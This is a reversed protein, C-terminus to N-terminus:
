PKQRRVEHAQKRKPHINGWFIRGLYELCATGENNQNCSNSQNGSDVATNRSNQRTVDSPELQPQGMQFSSSLHAWTLHARGMTCHSPRRHGLMPGDTGLGACDDCEWTATTPRLASCCRHTGKAACSSCLLLQWPGEEAAEERGQACLCRSADCGRHREYLEAFAGEAEWTPQRLPVRIGVSSMEWLFTERDKCQPCQFCFFGAGLAQQQICGQHFWTHTCVPCVLTHHSLKEEVPELCILCSTEGDQQAEVTQEPRHEQCFSRYQGFFQSVCGDKCSCPFHFSRKCGKQRCTVTAGREGCVYCLQLSCLLGGMLSMSPVGLAQGVGKALSCAHHPCQQRVDQLEVERVPSRAEAPAESCGRASTASNGRASPFGGCKRGM